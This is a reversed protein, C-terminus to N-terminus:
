INASLIGERKKLWSIIEDLRTVWIESHASLYEIIKIYATGWDHYENHMPFSTRVHWDMIGIGRYQKIIKIFDTVRQVAENADISHYFLNGDMCFVPLQMTKLPRQLNDSWPYYPLAVNRRFGLHENFAISSDYEFGAKEHFILTKDVNKNMHWYHHRLGAINCKSIEALKQREKIFFGENQYANYSAHLGIEFGRALLQPFLKVFKPTTIDYAVDYRTGLEDFINAAAFFFTSRLGLKEEVDMIKEFLWYDDTNKDCLRQKLAGMKQIIIPMGNKYTLGRNFYPGKLIAYKDPRDVDHSLGIACQKGNPWIPMFSVHFIKEFLSKLFSIYVNVIPFNAIKQKHQFSESFIIRGHRDHAERPLNKNGKDSLFFGIANIVDFSIVGGINNASVNGNILEGWIIDSANKKIVIKCGLPAKNNGYYISVDEDNISVKKGAMGVANLIFEFIYKNFISEEEFAYKIVKNAM